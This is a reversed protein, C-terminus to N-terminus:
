QRGEYGDGAGVLAVVDGGSLRGHDCPGLSRRAEAYIEVLREHEHGIDFAEVLRRGEHPSDVPADDAGGIGIRENRVGRAFVEHMQEDRVAIALALVLHFDGHELALASRQGVHGLLRAEPQARPCLDVYSLPAGYLHLSVHQPLKRGLGAEAPIDVASGLRLGSSGLVDEGARCLAAVCQAERELRGVGCGRLLEHDVHTRRGAGETAAECAICKDILNILVHRGRSMLDVAVDDHAIGIRWAASVLLRAVTHQSVHLASPRHAQARLAAIEDCAEVMAHAVRAAVVVEADLAIGEAVLRLGSDDPDALVVVAVAQGVVLPKLEGAGFEAGGIM